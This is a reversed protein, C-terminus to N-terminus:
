SAGADGAPKVVFTVTLQIDQRLSNWASCYITRSLDIARAVAADPVDGEVQFHLQLATLRHPQETARTAQLDVSLGQLDHRGKQLTHAVDMAMCAMVSYGLAQMPSVVGPTASELEIPPGIAGNTFRLGGHWVLSLNM